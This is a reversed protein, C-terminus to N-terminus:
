DLFRADGWWAYDNIIGDGGDTVILTVKKAGKVNLVVPLVRQGFRYVGSNYKEKGDILVKFEVSANRATAGFGIASAFLVANAPIEYVIESVSEGYISKPCIFGKGSKDAYLTVSGNLDKWKAGPPMWGPKVSVPTIDVLYKIKDATADKVEKPFSPQWRPIISIREPIYTEKEKGMVKLEVLQSGANGTHHFMTFKVYRAKSPEFWRELGKPHAPDVNKSEDIVTQWNSKDESLEIKYRCIYQRRELSRQKWTHFLVFIHDIERLEGLDIELWQPLPFKTSRTWSRKKYDMSAPLASGSDFGSQWFSTNDLKGDVALAPEQNKSFSSATVSRNLAYNIFREQSAPPIMAPQFEYIRIDGGKITETVVINGARRIWKADRNEYLEMVDQMPERCIIEFPLARYPYEAIMSATGQRRHVLNERELSYNFLTVTWGKGKKNILWSIDAKDEPRVRIDFPTLGSTLHEMLDPVFSLLSKTMWKRQWRGSMTETKIDQTMYHATVVIVHGRGVDNITVVPDDGAAYLSKAGALKLPTLTFKQEQFIKGTLVNHVESATKPSGARRVGLFVSDFHTGVDKINIVLTGGASVYRKLANAYRADIEVGGLTMLVKYGDFIKQDIPKDPIVSLIDFIEGYPATSFYEGTFKTHRHEPFILNDLLGATMFDADDMDLLNRHVAGGVYIPPLYRTYEKLLGVPAYPIGRDPCRDAYNLLDMGVRGLESLEYYGDDELDQIWFGPHSEIVSYNAGILFPRFMYYRVLSLPYGWGDRSIRCQWNKTEYGFRETPEHGRWTYYLKGGGSQRNVGRASANKRADAGKEAITTVRPNQILFWPNLWMGWGIPKGSERTYEAIFIDSLKTLEKHTWSHDKDAYFPLEKDLRPRLQQTLFKMMPKYMSPRVSSGYMRWEGTHLFEMLFDLRYVPAESSGDGIWIDKVADFAAKSPLPNGHTINYLHTHLPWKNDLYDRVCQQVSPSLSDFLAPDFKEIGWHGPVTRNLIGTQYYKKVRQASIRVYNGMEAWYFDHGDPYRYPTWYEGLSYIGIPSIIPTYESFVADSGEDIDGFAGTAMQIVLM